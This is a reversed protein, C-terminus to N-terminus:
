GANSMEFEVNFTDEPEDSYHYTKLKVRAPDFAGLEVTETRVKMNSVNKPVFFRHEVSIKCGDLERVVNTAWVTGQYTMSGHRETFNAMWKITDKLSADAVQQTAPVFSFSFFIAVSVTKM